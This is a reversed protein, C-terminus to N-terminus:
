FSEASIMKLFSGDSTVADNLVGYAFFTDDGSVRTVVAVAKSTTSTAGALELIRSWQFWEGPLLSISLPQGVKAGTSAAYLQVSLTIAKESGGGLNVVALNSRVSADQTLSPVLASTKAGSGRPVSAYFLGFSGGASTDASPTSTRALALTRASDVTAPYRFEM